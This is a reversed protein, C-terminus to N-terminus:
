NQFSAISEVDCVEGNKFILKNNWKDFSDYRLIAVEGYTAYEYCYKTKILIKGDTTQYLNQEIRKIEVRYFDEANAFSSFTNLLVFLLLAKKM